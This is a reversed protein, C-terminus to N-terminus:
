QQEVIQYGVSLLYNIEIITKKLAYDTYLGNSNTHKYWIKGDREGMLQITYLKNGLQLGMM